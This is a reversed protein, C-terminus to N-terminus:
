LYDFPNVFGGNVVVGFHLHTGGMGRPIVNGTCGVGGIVQGKTVNQGVSVDINSMHCYMTKIGNGHDITVHHGYSYEWMDVGVVQGDDSAVVPAGDLGPGNAFDVGNHNAYGYFGCSVNTCSPVPYCLQGTGKIGGSAVMKNIQALVKQMEAQADAQAEKIQAILSECEALSTAAESKRAELEAKQDSLENKKAQQEARDVDLQKKLEQLEHLIDELEKIADADMEGIKKVMELRTLYESFDKSTMLVQLSSMSGAIYLSKLRACFDSYKKDMRKQQKEIKVQYDAIQGQLKEIEGQVHDINKNILEVQSVLSFYANQAAELQDEASAKENKLKDYERKAQSYAKKAKDLESEASATVSVSSVFLLSIVVLVSLVQVAATKLSKM